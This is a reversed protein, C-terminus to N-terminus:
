WWLSKEGGSGEKWKEMRKPSMQSQANQKYSAGGSKKRIRAMEVQLQGEQEPSLGGTSQGSASGPGKEGPGPGGEPPGSPPPSANASANSPCDPNEKLAALEKEIFADNEAAQRSLPEEKRRLPGAQFRLRAAEWLERTRQLHCMAPDKEKQGWEYLLVGDNFLAAAFDGELQMAKQYLDHAQSYNGKEREVRAENYLPVESRVGLSQSKLFSEGANEMASSHFFVIGEENYLHAKWLNWQCSLFLPLALLPLSKLRRAFASFGGELLTLVLALWLFTGTHYKRGQVQIARLDTQSEDLWTSIEEHIEKHFVSFTGDTARAIAQLHSDMRATHIESHVRKEKLGALVDEPHFLNLNVGDESGIAVTHIRVNKEAFLQLPQEYPDAFDEPIEGDSLILIQTIRDAPLRLLATLLRSFSTGSEGWAHETLNGLMEQLAAHDKTAPAHYAVAGSFTYLGFRDEPRSQILSQALLKASEFRLQKGTPAEVDSALMSLSADLCILISTSRDQVEVEGRSYPGALAFLLAACITTILTAHLALLLPSYATIRHQRAPAVNQRIFTLALWQQRYIWFLLPLIFIALLLIFPRELMM